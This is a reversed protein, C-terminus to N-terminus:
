RHHLGNAALGILRKAMPGPTLGLRSALAQLANAPIAELYFAVRVDMYKGDPLVPAQALQTQTTNDLPSLLLQVLLTKLANKIENEDLLESLGLPSFWPQPILVSTTLVPPDKRIRERELAIQLEQAEQLKISIALGDELESQVAALGPWIPKDVLSESDKLKRKLCWLPLKWTGNEDQMVLSIPVTASRVVEKFDPNMPDNFWRRARFNVKVSKETPGKGARKVPVLADDHTSSIQGFLKMMWKIRSEPNGLHDDRWLCKPVWIQGGSTTIRWAKETSRDIPWVVTHCAPGKGFVTQLENRQFQNM